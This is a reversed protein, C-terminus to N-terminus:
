RGRERETHTNRSRQGEKDRWRKRDREKRGVKFGSGKWDMMWRRGQELNTKRIYLMKGGLINKKDLGFSKDKLFLILSFCNKRPSSKGAKSAWEQGYKAM